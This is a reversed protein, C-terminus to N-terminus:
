LHPRDRVRARGDRAARSRIPTVHSECSRKLLVMPVHRNLTCRTRVRHPQAPAQSLVHSCKKAGLVSPKGLYDLNLASFAGQRSRGKKIIPFLGRFDHQAEPFARPTRTVGQDASIPLHASVRSTSRFPSRPSRRPTATAPICALPRGLAGILRGTRDGLHVNITQDLGPRISPGTRLQQLAARRVRNRKAMAQGQTGLVKRHDYKM